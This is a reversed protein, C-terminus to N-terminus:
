SHWAPLNVPLIPLSFIFSSVGNLLNSKFSNIASIGFLKHFLCALLLLLSSNLSPPEHICHQYTPVVNRITAVPYFCEKHHFHFCPGISHFANSSLLLWGGGSGCNKKVNNLFGKVGRGGKTKFM